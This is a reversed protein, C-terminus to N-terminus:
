DARFSQSVSDTERTERRGTSSLALSNRHHSRGCINNGALRICILQTLGSHGNSGNLMVLERSSRASDAALRTKQVASIIIFEPAAMGGPKERFVQIECANAATRYALQCDVQDSSRDREIIDESM